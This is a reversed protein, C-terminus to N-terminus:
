EDKQHARKKAARLRSMVDGEAAPQSASPNAPQNTPKVTPQSLSPSPPPVMAETTPPSSPPILPPAAEGDRRHAVTGKRTLLRSMSEERQAAVRRAAFYGGFPLAFRQAVYAYIALADSKTVMLRRVAVDLPFLCAALMLMPWMFDRQYKAGERQPVFVNAADKLTLGRGGSEEAVRGLLFKDPELQKYEPSYALVVGSVTSATRGDAQKTSLNVMYNGIEKAEFEAQYRGPSTQDLKLTQTRQYDPLIVRAEPELFNVFGGREDVADVTIRGKGRVIDVNTQFNANNTQRMSWRIVQAWFKPFRDWPIWPAAWREKADSTFAVSKGLGYQWWALIPDGHKSILNVSALAKPTTGVYGLLRPLGGDAVGKMMPGRSQLIPFFPEEVIASRMVTSAEKLFIKPIQAPNKVDYYKGGFAQAINKLNQTTSSDHCVVGVASVTIKAAAIKQALLLSPPAPDGDSLIIMHKLRAKTKVLGQYAVEMAEDFSPMDGPNMTRILGLLQSRRDALKVMGLNGVWNASMGFQIVGAYDEPSLLQVVKTCTTKAWDNGGAFECSHMIMAVAGSPIVRQSKLDMTVPLTDEIPTKRYGGAGFSQEGGIMVLGIGLDRVMSQLAQMQRESLDWAPVNKLIVTDFDQLQPLTAPVGSSGRVEVDLKQSQLANVFHKSAGADGDILLVKPKGRVAVFGLAKNNETLTDRDSELQAEYRVFGQKEITETVYFNNRGPHALFKHEGLYGDNRFLRVKTEATVNSQVLVTLQIPEGIKAESPMVIKDLLVEPASPPALPVVDIPVRNSRAMLAEDLANGLNENGDSLVVIRKQYGDPFTAQALRIAASIDSYETPPVTAIRDLNLKESPATDVFAESGFVVLGAKDRPRMRKTAQQIYKVAARKSEQSISDSFDLVFVVALDKSIRVLQIGALALVLLVIVVLRVGFTLRRRAPSLDSLSHQTWYGFWPLLPLLLLLAWPDTFSLTM